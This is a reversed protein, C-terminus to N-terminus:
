LKLKINGVKIMRESIVGSIPAKIQTYKLNLNALEYAAKQSEYEFKSNEYQEASILKRDYLEKNRKYDNHLRDMTAKARTAEIELQEDTFYSRRSHAEGLLLM